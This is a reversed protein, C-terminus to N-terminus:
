RRRLAASLILSAFDKDKTVFAFVNAKAYEWIIGDPTSGL